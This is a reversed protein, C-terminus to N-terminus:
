TKRIMKLHALRKVIIIAFFMSFGSLANLNMLSSILDESPTEEETTSTPNQDSINDSPNSTTPNSSSTSTTTLKDIDLVSVFISDYVTYNGDVVVMTYNYVGSELGTINYDYNLNQSLNGTDLETGNRYFKYTGDYSDTINFWIQRTENSYMQFNDSSIISPILESHVTILVEDEAVKGAIDIVQITLRFDGPLTKIFEFEIFDTNIWYYSTNTHINNRTIDVINITYKWPHSDNAIWHMIITDDSEISTVIDAVDSIAPMDTDLYNGSLGNVYSVIESVSCQSLETPPNSISMVPSMLTGTNSCENDYGDHGANFSHGLEHAITTATFPLNRWGESIGYSYSTELSGVYALGTISSEFDEGSIFLGLDYESVSNNDAAWQRFNVLLDNVLIESDNNYIKTVFDEDSYDIIVESLYLQVPIYPQYISNVQDILSYITSVTEIGFIDFFEYDAVVFLTFYSIEGENIQIDSFSGQTSSIILISTFIVIFLKSM